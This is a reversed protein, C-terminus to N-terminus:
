EDEEPVIAMGCICCNPENMGECISCHLDLINCKFWQVSKEWWNMVVIHRPPFQREGYDGTIYRDLDAKMKGDM